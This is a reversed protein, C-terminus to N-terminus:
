TYVLEIGEDNDFVKESLHRVDALYSDAPVNCSITKYLSHDLNYIRCQAGAVDMLYYKYGPTEFKVLAASYNYTHELTVQTYGAAAMLLLLSNLIPKKM